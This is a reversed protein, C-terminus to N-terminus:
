WDRYLSGDLATKESDIRIDFVDDANWSSDIADRYGRVEWHDEIDESEVFPNKPVRRLYYLSKGDADSSEVGNVLNELTKPYCDLSVGDQAKLMLGSECDDHFRDIAGRVKRLALRLDAEKVRYHTVKVYPLTVTALISLITLSVLMEVM